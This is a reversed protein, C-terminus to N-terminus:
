EFNDCHQNCCQANEQESCSLKTMLFAEDYLFWFPQWLDTVTVTPAMKSYPQSGHLWEKGNEAMRVCKTYNLSCWDTVDNTWTRRQKGKSRTGEIKREM